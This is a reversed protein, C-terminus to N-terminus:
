EVNTQIEVDKRQPNTQVAVDQLETDPQVGRNHFIIVEDWAWNTPPTLYPEELEEAPINRDIHRPDDPGLPRVDGDPLFFGRPDARRENRGFPIPDWTSLGEPRDQLPPPIFPQPIANVARLKLPSKRKRTCGGFHMGSSGYHVHRLPTYEDDFFRRRRKKKRKQLPQHKKKHTSEEKKSSKKKKRVAKEKKLLNPQNLAFLNPINRCMMFMVFGPYILTVPVFVSLFIKQEKSMLVQHSEKVEVQDEQALIGGGPLILNLVLLFTIVRKM